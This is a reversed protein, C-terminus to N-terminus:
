WDRDCGAPAVYGDDIADIDVFGPFSTSASDIAGQQAYIWAVEELEGLQAERLPKRIAV